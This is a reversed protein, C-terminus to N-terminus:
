THNHSVHKFIRGKTLNGRDKGGQGDGLRLLFVSTAIAIKTCIHRCHRQAATSPSGNSSGGINTNLHSIKLFPTLVLGPCKAALPLLGQLTGWRRSRAVVQCGVSAVAPHEVSSSLAYWKGSRSEPLVSM